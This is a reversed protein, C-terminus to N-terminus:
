DWFDKAIAVGGYFDLKDMLLNLKFVVITHQDWQSAIKSYLMDMHTCTASTIAPYCYWFLGYKIVLDKGVNFWTTYFTITKAHAEKPWLTPYM